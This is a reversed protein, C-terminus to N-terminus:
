LGQEIILGAIPAGELEAKLEPSLYCVQDETRRDEDAKAIKSFFVQRYQVKGFKDKILQNPSTEHNEPYRVAQANAFQDKTRQGISISYQQTDSLIPENSLVKYLCANPNAALLAMAQELTTGEAVMPFAVRNEVSDFVSEEFGYASIPSLSDQLSNGARQSPYVSTITITQRLEATETKSKQFDSKYVRAVTIPGKHMTRVIGNSSGAGIVQNEM